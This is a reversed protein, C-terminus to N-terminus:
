YVSQEYLEYNFDEDVDNFSTFMAGLPTESLSTIFDQMVKAMEEDSLNVAQNEDIEAIKSNKKKNSNLIIEYNNKQDNISINLSATQENKKNTKKYSVKGKYNLELENKINYNFSIENKSFKDFDLTALEKNDQKIVVNLNKGKKIGNIYSTTYGTKITTDFNGNNNYYYIGEKNNDEISYGLIKGFFNSYISIYSDENDSYNNINSEIEEKLEEKTKGTLNILIKCAKEDNYLDKLIAKNIRDSEKTNIKYTNKTAKIKKNNVIITESKKSFNDKNLNKKLSSSSVKILYKLDETKTKELGEFIEKYDSEEADNFHILKDYSSLLIYIKSKKLYGAISYEKNKDDKMYIKGEINKEDSDIGSKFGFTYKSFQELAKNDTNIKVNVESLSKDLNAEDLYNNILTEAKSILNNFQKQPTNTIIYIIFGVILILVSALIIIPLNNKKKETVKVPQKLYAPDINQQTPSIQENPQGNNQNPNVNQDLNTDTPTPNVNQNINASVPNPNVNQNLNTDTPTPNVNQNINASVPTPSVSQNINASVPTPNVSQNLNLTEISSNDTAATNNQNNENNM